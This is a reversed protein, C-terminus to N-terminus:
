ASSAAPEPVPVQAARAADHGREPALRGAVEPALRLLAAAAVISLALCGIWVPTGGLAAFAIGGTLPALVASGSWAIQYVGQYRGRLHSPALQAVLASAIPTNGIEGITWVTVSLAFVGLSGGLLPVAMGLGMVLGSSAIVQVTPFRELWRVLPLQLAVILVGNIASIYGVHAASLGDKAMAMPQAANCQQFVLLQLFFVAVFGVFVRDRLVTRLGDRAAPGSGKSESAASASVPVAQPTTDHVFVAMLVVCLLTSAADAYFLARYGFAVVLGISMSAVAFGLNIAWYNLGYARVRQAPPVIDAIMASTAPRFANTVLGVTLAGLCLWLPSRAYGLALISAANATLSAVLTPKRGIRDALVGGVVGSVSAGVGYLAAVLGAFAASRHMPGTLYYALLPLVFSGLRNVLTGLWIWWFASPLGGFAGRAAGRMRGAANSTRSM